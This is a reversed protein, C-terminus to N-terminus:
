RAKARMGFMSLRKQLAARLESPLQLFVSEANRWMLFTAMLRGKPSCYGALRAEALSLHEVDNTLQGHLFTAADDGTVAAVVDAKDVQAESLRTAECADAQLWPVGAPEGSREAARVVAPDNDIILVDHKAESLQQGIFRGVSGGGAIVVRM